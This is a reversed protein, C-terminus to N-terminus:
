PGIDIILFSVPADIFSADANVERTWIRVSTTSDVTYSALGTETATATGGGCSVLVLVNGVATAATTLTLTWLGTVGKVATCGAVKATSSPTLLGRALVKGGILVADVYAKTAADQAAVPNTVSGLTRNVAVATAGVSFTLSGAPGLAVTGGTPAQLLLGSSQGVM